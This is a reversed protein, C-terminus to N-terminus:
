PASCPSLLHAKSLACTEGVEAKFPHVMQLWSPNTERISAGSEGKAPAKTFKRCSQCAISVEQAEQWSQQKHLDEIDQCRSDMELQSRSGAESASEIHTREDGHGARYEGEALWPLGQLRPSTRCSGPNDYGMRDAGFCLVYQEWEGWPPTGPVELTGKM